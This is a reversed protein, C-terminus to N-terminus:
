TIPFKAVQYCSCSADELGELDIIRINGRSYEILNRKQLQGAAKTVGVRRVGLMHSLFEQTLQFHNSGVRDRTMLLWRALREPVMHFRNCAATQSIQSMLGYTYRNIANQLPLSHRLERRFTAAKMRLATGAGQVLARFPSADVGLALPIGVMGERGVMGVELALHNDVLTLLSVLSDCPFYVHRMTDGPEYLIDGFALTVPECGAVVSEFDKGPLAALVKNQTPTRDSDTQRRRRGSQPARSQAAPLEARFDVIPPILSATM